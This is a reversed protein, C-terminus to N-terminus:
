PAEQPPDTRSKWSASLPGSAVMRGFIAYVAMLVVGIQTGVALVPFPAESDRNVLADVLAVVASVIIALQAQVTKSSLFWKTRADVVKM